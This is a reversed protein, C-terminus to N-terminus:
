GAQFSFLILYGDAPRAIDVEGATVTTWSIAIKEQQYGEFMSIIENIAEKEDSTLQEVVFVLHVDMDGPKLAVKVFARTVCGAAAQALFALQLNEWSTKSDPLWM